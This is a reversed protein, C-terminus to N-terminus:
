HRRHIHLEYAALGLLLLLAPGFVILQLTGHPLMHSSFRLALLLVYIFGTWGTLLATFLELFSLRIPTKM